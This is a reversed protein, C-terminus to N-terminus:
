MQVLDPVMNDQKPKKCPSMIKRDAGDDDVKQSEDPDPTSPTANAEPSMPQTEGPTRERKHSIKKKRLPTNDEDDEDDEDDENDQEVDDSETADKVALAIAKVVDFVTDDIAQVTEDNVLDKVADAIVHEAGADTAAAVVPPLWQKLATEASVGPQATDGLADTANEPVPALKKPATTPPM